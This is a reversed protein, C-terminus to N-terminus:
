SSKNYDTLYYAIAVFPHILLMGIIWLAKVNDTIRHNRIVDIFMVLEFVFIALLVTAVIVASVGGLGLFAFSNLM